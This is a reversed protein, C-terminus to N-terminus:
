VDCFGAIAVTEVVPRTVPTAFPEVEIMTREVASVAM